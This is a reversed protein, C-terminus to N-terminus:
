QQAVRFSAGTCVSRSRRWGRAAETATEVGSKVEEVIRADPQNLSTMPVLVSCPTQERKAGKLRM